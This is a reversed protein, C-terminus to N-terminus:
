KRPTGAARAAGEAAKLRESAAKALSGSPALELYKAYEAAAEKFRKALALRGGLYYHGQAYTPDTSVAARLDDLTGKDDKLGLKCLARETRVEGGDKTQIARDFTKECAAFEGAMRYEHGVSVVMAYDDKVLALAADLQAAAGPVRWASLWHALTLRFMPESPQIKVAEQLEHVAGDQDGHAALAVGLNEHLPASSPHRALGARGVALADDLRGEDVYLACLEAAATELDPRAALAATYAAEAAPRDGLKECAMGLDYMAEYKGEDNGRNTRIASEFSRRADAFRGADFAKIGAVMDASPPGAHPESAAPDAPRGADAQGEGALSAPSPDAGGTRSPSRSGGCAAISLGAVLAVIREHATM